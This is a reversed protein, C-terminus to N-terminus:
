KLLLMRKTETFNGSKLQYFYVGSPLEAANFEYNYVGASFYGRALVAIKQGVANYVSLVTFANDDAISFKITTAPNFPNPYNQSLSFELPNNIEDEIGTVVGNATLSVIETQLPHRVDAIVIRITTTEESNPTVDVDITRTEDIALPSNGFDPNTVISDLHPPYCTGFCLNTIWGEPFNPLRRVVFLELESGSTNTVDIHFATTTDIQCDLETEHLTVTFTQANILTTFLFASVISFYLFRKM